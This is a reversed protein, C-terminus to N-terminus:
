RYRAPGDGANALEIRYVGAIDAAPDYERSNEVEERTLQVNVLQKRWDVRSVRELPVLVARGGIWNSTDVLLYRITWTQDDVLYDDIHGIEGDSAQLHYGAVTQTSRLHEDDVGPEAPIPEHVALRAESPSPWDGWIGTGAWYYPIAYHNAYAAEWRRSMPTALDADPAAEIQGRTLTFVVTAQEWRVHDITMPSLLVVRGAFWKGTTVVVYRVTWREDDFYFDQIAGLDQGDSSLVAWHELDKLRRLM